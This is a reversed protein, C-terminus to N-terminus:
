YPEIQMREQCGRSALFVSHLSKVSGVRGRKKKLSKLRWGSKWEDGEAPEFRQIVQVGQTLGRRGGGGGGDRVGARVRGCGAVASRAPVGGRAVAGSPHYRTSLRGGIATMVAPADTARQSVMSRYGNRTNRRRRGREGAECQERATGPHGSAPPGATHTLTDQSAPCGHDYLSKTQAEVQGTELHPTWDCYSCDTAAPRLFHTPLRSEAKSERVM